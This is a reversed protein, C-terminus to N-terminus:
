VTPDVVRGIFLPEGTEDHEILFIFPRDARIEAPPPASTSSVVLATAATATTGVEDVEITAQHFAGSVYLDAGKSIGSFDAASSDFANAVGLRQFLPILDASTKFDFKPLGVSVGHDNRLASIEDLLGELLKGEIESFRDAEPLIVVMSYGGWYGLRVSQWGDGEAYTTRSNGQMMQVDVTSGDLRTFPTSITRSSQFEDVWAAKFFVTNVLILRVLDTISGEPLLDAIRGRTAVEVDDNITARAAEPSGVFDLLKMLAGYNEALTQVFTTEFEFGPQGYPTNVIELELPTAGEPLRGATRVSQDLSNRAADWNPGGGLVSELEAKTEGAAGATVMSFATAISFPSFILNGDQLKSLEAYLATALQRDGLVALALAEPSTDGQVRDFSGDLNALPILGPKTTSRSPELPEPGISELDSGCAVALAAMLAVLFSRRSLQNM